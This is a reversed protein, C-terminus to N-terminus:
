QAGMAAVPTAVFAHLEGGFTGTGVIIGADNIASAHVLVWGAGSASMRTNLDFMRHRNYVFPTCADQGCTDGVVWGRDNVDYAEGRFSFGPLTNLLTTGGQCWVVAWDNWTQRSEDQYVRKYGVVEDRANVGYAESRYTDTALPTVVGDKYIWARLTDDFNDVSTGVIHDKDNMRVYWFPFQTHAGELPPLRKMRGNKYIFLEVDHYGGSAHGSIHGRNNVSTARSWYGDGYHNIGDGLDVITTGDWAYGFPGWPYQTHGASGVVTGLDNIAVASSGLNGEDFSPTATVIGHDFVYGQEDYCLLPFYCGADAIGVVVGAANISMPMVAVGLSCDLCSVDYLPAAAWAWGATAALACGAAIKRFAITRM